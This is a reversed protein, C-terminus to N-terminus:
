DQFFWIWELKDGDFVAKDSDLLLLSNSFLLSIIATELSFSFFLTSPSLCSLMLPFSVSFSLALPFSVSSPFNMGVAVFSCNTLEFM